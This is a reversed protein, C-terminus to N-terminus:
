LNIKWSCREGCWCATTGDTRCWFQVYSIMVHCWSMDFHTLFSLHWSRVEENMLLDKQYDGLCEIGNKLTPEELLEAAAISLGVQGDIQFEFRNKQRSFNWRHKWCHWETINQDCTHVNESWKCRGYSVNKLSIEALKRDIKLSTFNWHFKVKFFIFWTSRLTQSM